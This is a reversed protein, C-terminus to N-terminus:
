LTFALTQPTQLDFSDIERMFFNVKGAWTTSPPAYTRGIREISNLGRNYYKEKLTKTVVDISEEWSKFSYAGNAWGYANYSRTPIQKGFTSEVGTIAPVLKWEPLEYEDAKKVFLHAYEMLPSNHKRLYNKLKLIRKDQNIRIPTPTPPLEGLSTDGAFAPTSTTLGIIFVFFFITRKM